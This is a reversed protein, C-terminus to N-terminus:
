KMGKGEGALAGSGEYDGLGELLKRIGEFAMGVVRMVRIEEM